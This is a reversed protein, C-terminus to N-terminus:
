LDILVVKRFNFFLINRGKTFKRLAMPHTSSPHDIYIFLRRRRSRGTGDKTKLNKQDSKSRKNNSFNDKERKIGFNDIQLFVYIVSFELTIENEHIM